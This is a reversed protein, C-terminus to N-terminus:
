SHSRTPPSMESWMSRKVEAILAPAMPLEFVKLNKPGYGAMARVNMLHWWFLRLPGTEPGQAGCEIEFVGNEEM